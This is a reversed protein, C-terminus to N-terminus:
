QAVECLLATAQEYDGAAELALGRDRRAGVAQVVARERLLPLATGGPRVVDDAEDPVPVQPLGGFLDETGRFIIITKSTM